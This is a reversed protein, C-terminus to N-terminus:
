AGVGFVKITGFTIFHIDSSGGYEYDWEYTEVPAVAQRRNLATRMAGGPGNRVNQETFIEMNTTVPSMDGSVYSNTPEVSAAVLLKFDNKAAINLQLNTGAAANASGTAFLSGIMATQRCRHLLYAAAMHGNASGSLTISFTKSGATIPLDVQPWWSYSVKLAQGGDGGHQTFLTGAQGDFIPASHTVENVGESMYVIVLGFNAGAELGFNISFSPAATASNLEGTNVALFLPIASWSLGLIGATDSLPHFDSVQNIKKVARIWYYRDRLEDIIVETFTEGFTGAINVANARVNDDSAWVEIADFEQQPPNSWNLVVGNAVSTATLGTPAVLLINQDDSPTIDCPLFMIRFNVGTQDFGSISDPRIPAMNKQPANVTLLNRNQGLADLFPLAYQAPVLGTVASFHGAIDPFTQASGDLLWLLAGPAGAGGAGGYIHFTRGGVSVTYFSTPELADTGDLRIDGSVGFDGGRCIICLGAGGDGGAGGTAKQHTRGSVGIKQGAFQGYAGGGGRMDAPMGIVTGSGADDVELVINPFADYLGETPHKNTIWAWGDASRFLIGAHRQSNGIFGQVGFQEDADWFYHQDFDFLNAGAAHGKGIGDIVGDITIFGKVRLQVNDEIILTTGSSITLDADWYFIAGDANLDANGTLTFSGANTLNGSMLGGITSLSVGESAYFADPLCTSAEVPPIEDARESSGFLKLKVGGLWDVSMGHVVMTRELSAPAASYDRLHTLEIRGPDGVEIRNLLHFCTTDLRLPPGTYMDRISTLLQRLTQETFRSGVLGRFGIRKQVSQGHRAISGSDVVITSRIYREGNWNWDVRLNNQMSQMDHRLTGTSIVNEDTLKFKYPSDALSPVMRKLGLQGDAYVPSFLGILLYIETELFKKADQKEIGDFRLIVGATDDAEQWLDRGINEFDSLRVFSTDVGAHWNSPLFTAPTGAGGEPQRDTPQRGTPQRGDPQRPDGGGGPVLDDLVGTLIAYALKVAPLELYVYEEVQPRRDSAQTQDVEVAKAISGLVGRVVNTFDNGSIGSVPCRIIEKTQDIKIYIVETNPADTYSPGHPNGEFGSLDLVPITTATESIDNTLYTLALQFIQKKTQRQIDSCNITYRGEKTDVNQVVQTQFLVFEDFDPNDDSSTGTTIQAGPATSLYGIYFAVTRGRLGVNNSDLETRFLDTISSNLDVLDFMMSGITANARDPNLTQSTASIGFVSNHIPTGPVNAIDDHSTFYQLSGDFDISVVYRPKKSASENDFTFLSSDLRM